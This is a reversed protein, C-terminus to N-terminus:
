KYDFDVFILKERNWYSHLGYSYTPLIVKRLLIHRKLLAPQNTSVVLISNKRNKPNAVVQMIVYDEEIREGQHCYGAKDYPVVLLHRLKQALGSGAKFDLLILNEDAPFETELTETEIPYSTETEPFFGNTEPSSFQKALRKLEEPANEPVIVTLADLYVDLLGTGKRYDIEPEEQVIRWVKKKAFVLKKEQFDQFTFHSRNLSVSFSIRNIQPPIELSLSDCNKLTIDIHSEDTIRCAVNATECGSRIGNLKLYYSQLHRNRQTKFYVTDPYPNRVKSTIERLLGRHAIYQRFCAHLMEKFNFQTYNEYPRLLNEVQSERGHFVYDKPSVVQFIPINTMNKILSTNPYSIMPFVAAPLSPHNQAISYCAFGGNSQGFLYVRNEDIHYNKKVWELIELTSAEGIYSGGTYGRGPVDFCLIPEPLLEFELWDGFFEGYGTMLMFIVPYSEQPDYEKPIHAKIQVLSKDLRSQIFFTHDGPYCYYNLRHRNSQVNEIFIRMALITTYLEEMNHYGMQKQLLKTWGLSQVAIDGDFHEAQQELMYVQQRYLEDVNRIIVTHEKKVPQNNIRSTFVCSVTIHYPLQGIQKRIPALHISAAMNVAASFKELLKGAEDRAEVQYEPLYMNQTPVIYMFRYTDEEPLYRGEDKLVLTDIVFNKGTNSLARFSSGMEFAFNLLQVSLIDTAQTSFKEILLYNRGKKLSSKVYYHDAWFGTHISVCTGNLWIKTNKSSETRLIIECDERSIIQAYLFVKEDKHCDFYKFINSFGRDVDDFMEFQGPDDEVTLLQGVAFGDIVTDFINYEGPATKRSKLVLFSSVLKTEGTYRCPIYKSM